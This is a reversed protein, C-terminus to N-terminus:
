APRRERSRLAEEVREFLEVARRDLSVAGPSGLNGGSVRERGTDIRLRAETARERLAALEADTLEGLEALRLAQADGGPPM